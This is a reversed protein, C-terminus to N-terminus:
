PRVEEKFYPLLVDDLDMQETRLDVVHYHALVKILQDMDGSVALRLTHDDRGVVRVNPLMLVDAPLEEALRVELRHLSRDVLRAIPEVAVLRGARLIGVRDCVHEVEHLVHSSFFITTGRRAEERVIEWTTRQVLPDLGSTPEDLLLVAPRGLLALVIGLKQRNGKSYADIHHSLDLDMREALTAVYARDVPHTRLGAVLDVMEQGRLGGYLRLDGPLYGVLARVEHSRQQCDLGLISARGATPRILDLLLRITTTKGAGNPGLFGFVEGPEVRLNLGALARQHGYDKTFGEILIAPNMTTSRDSM